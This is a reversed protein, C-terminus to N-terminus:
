FIVLHKKLIAICNSNAQLAEYKYGLYLGCLLMLLMFLLIVFTKRNPNLDEFKMLKFEKKEKEM